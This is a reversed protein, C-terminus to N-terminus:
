KKNKRYRKPLQVKSNRNFKRKNKMEESEKHEERGRGFSNYLGKAKPVRKEEDIYTFHQCFLPKAHIYDCNMFKNQSSSRLKFVIQQLSSPSNQYSPLAHSAPSNQINKTIGSTHASSNKNAVLYVTSRLATLCPTRLTRVFFFRPNSWCKSTLGKMSRVHM